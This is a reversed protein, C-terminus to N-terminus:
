QKPRLVREKMPSIKEWSQHRPIRLEKRRRSTRGSIMELVPWGLTSCGPMEVLEHRSLKLRLSRLECREHGM